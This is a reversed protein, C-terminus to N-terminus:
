DGSLDDPLDIRNRAANIVLANWRRQQEPTATWDSGFLARGQQLMLLAVQASPVHGADALQMFRAYAGAYRQARFQEAAREFAVPQPLTTTQAYLSGAAASLGFLAAWLPHRM